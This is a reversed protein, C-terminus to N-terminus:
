SNNNNSSSSSSSFQTKITTIVVNQTYFTRSEIGM